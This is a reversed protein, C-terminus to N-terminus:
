TNTEFAGDIPMFGPHYAVRSPTKQTQWYVIALDFRLQNPIPGKLHHLFFQAGRLLARKKHIPILDAENHGAHNLSRSKVEVFALTNGKEAVLDLEFGIHRFNQALIIWGQNTLLRRVLQEGAGGIKQM